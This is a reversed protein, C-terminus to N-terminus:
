EDSLNEKAIHDTLKSVEERVDEFSKTVLVEGLFFPDNTIEVVAFPPPEFQELEEASQFEVRAINLGWLKGLYVDFAFTRRDFEHFYRNKRIETGEFTEFQAHEAENLYIDSFKLTSLDGENAPFRQQLIRTWGATEPDRVSRIRLRTETIYNDFIQIHASARTLPEPLGEILFSRHMETRNTKDM